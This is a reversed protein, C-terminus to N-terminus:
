SSTARARIWASRRRSKPRSCASFSATRTPRGPRATSACSRRAPAKRAASASRARGAPRRRVVQIRGASRDPPTGTGAHRSRHHQQEGGDQRGGGRTGRPDSAHVSVLDGRGSLSQPEDIRGDAHRHRPPRPRRRERLRRRLSRAHAVLPAMAYPSSCDMRIRGDWDVTM